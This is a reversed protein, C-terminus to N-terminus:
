FIPISKPGNDAQVIVIVAVVAVAIAVGVAIKTGTSWNNTQAPRIQSKVAPTVKGARADSVMKRVGARLKENPNAENSAIAGPEASTTAIKSKNERDSMTNALASLGGSTSVLATVLAFYAFKSLMTREQMLSVAKRYKQPFKM